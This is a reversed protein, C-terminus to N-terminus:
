KVLSQTVGTNPNEGVGEGDMRVRCREWLKDDNDDYSRCMVIRFTTTATTTSLCIWNLYSCSAGRRMLNWKFREILVKLQNWVSVCASLCWDIYLYIYWVYMCTCIYTQANTARLFAYLTNNQSIGKGSEKEAKRKVQRCNILASNDYTIRAYITMEIYSIYIKVRVESINVIHM